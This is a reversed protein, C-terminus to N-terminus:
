SNYIQTDTPHYLTKIDGIWPVFMFISVKKKIFVDRLAQIRVTISIQIAACSNKNCLKVSTFASPDWHTCLM